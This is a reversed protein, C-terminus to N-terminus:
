LALTIFYEDGPIGSVNNRLLLPAFSRWSLEEIVILVNDAYIRGLVQHYIVSALFIYMRMYLELLIIGVLIACNM